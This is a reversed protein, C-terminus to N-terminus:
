SIAGWKIRVPLAPSWCPLAACRLLFSRAKTPLAALTFPSARQMGSRRTPTSTAQAWETTTCLNVIVTGPRRPAARRPRCHPTIDSWGAANRRRPVGPRRLRVPGRRLQRAAPVGPDVPKRADPRLDPQPRRRGYCRLRHRRHRRRQEGGGRRRGNRHRSPEPQQLRNLRRGVRPLWNADNPSGDIIVHQSADYNDDLDLHNYDVGNDYVAVTVGRGHLRACMPSTSISMAPDLGTQGTNLLNWQLGFLPDNPIFQAM